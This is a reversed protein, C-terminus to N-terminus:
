ADAQASVHTHTSSAKPFLSADAVCLGAVGRVQHFAFLTATTLRNLKALAFAPSLRAYRLRFKPESRM